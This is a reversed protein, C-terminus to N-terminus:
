GVEEKKIRTIFIIATVILWIGGSVAGILSGNIAGLAIVVAWGLVVALILAQKDHMFMTILFLMLLFGFFAGNVTGFSGTDSAELDITSQTKLDGDVYIDIFLFRDTSIVDSVNCNVVGSTSTLSNECVTKNGFQNNRVIITKVTKVSLDTSIFNFSVLKTANSYVPNTYSIGLDDIYDYVTDSDSLANLNLTCQGITFDECFAIQKNFTALINGFQDVFILNYVVDNRVM